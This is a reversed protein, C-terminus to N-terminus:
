SMDELMRYSGVVTAALQVPATAQRESANAAFRKFAPLATLPNPGDPLRAFHVFRGDSLELVLYGVETLGSQALEEFVASILARNEERKAEHAQYQVVISKM